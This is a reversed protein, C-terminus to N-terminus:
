LSAVAARMRPPANTKAAPRSRAPANVLLAGAAGWSQRGTTPQTVVVGGVTGRGPTVKGVRGVTGTVVVVVVWPPEVALEVVEVALETVVAVPLVV